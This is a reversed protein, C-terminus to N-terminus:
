RRATRSWSRSTRTRASMPRLDAHREPRGVGSDFTAWAAAESISFRLQIAKLTAEGRAPVRLELRRRGSSAPSGSFVPPTNDRRTARIAFAPLARTSTGDSVAIRINTWGLRGATPTGALSRECHQLEGV